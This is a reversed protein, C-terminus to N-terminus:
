KNVENTGNLWRFTGRKVKSNLGTWLGALHSVGKLNETNSYQLITVM